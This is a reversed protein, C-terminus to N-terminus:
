QWQSVKSVVFLQLFYFLYFAAFGNLEIISPKLIFCKWAKTIDARNFLKMIEKAM